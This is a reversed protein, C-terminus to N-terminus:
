GEFEANRRRLRSQRAAAAERALQEAWTQVAEYGGRKKDWPTMVHLGSKGTTKIFNEVGADDLMVHLTRAVTVANAFTSQHPDVDFLVFDPIDLRKVRSFWVHFTLANQNVLYLLSPLDNVLAYEVPKGGDSSKIKVRPIWKPYYAPTNKQWFHEAGEGVGSPFREITIPRDRLHPLLKDAVKAYFELVDGKTYGTQPFVVRELSSFSIDTPNGPKARTATPKMSSIIMWCNIEPPFPSNAATFSM